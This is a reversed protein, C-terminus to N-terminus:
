ENYNFIIVSTNFAESAGMAKANQPLNPRSSNSPTPKARVTLILRVKLNIWNFM